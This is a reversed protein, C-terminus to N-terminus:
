VKLAQHPKEVPKKDYCAQKMSPMLPLIESSRVRKMQANQKPDLPMNPYYNQHPNM